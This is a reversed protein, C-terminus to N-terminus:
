SRLPSCGGSDPWPPVPPHRARCTPPNGTSCGSTKGLNLIALYLAHAVPEGTLLDFAMDFKCGATMGGDNGHGPFDAHNAKPLKVQCSDEIIVRGFVDTAILAEKSWRQKLAVGVVSLLFPVTSLDM